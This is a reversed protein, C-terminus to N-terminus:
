CGAGSQNSQRGTTGDRAQVTFTTQHGAPCTVGIETNVQGISNAVVPMFGLGATSTNGAGDRSTTSGYTAVTAGPTFGSGGVRLISNGGLGFAVSASITPSGQSPQGPQTTPYYGARPPRECFTADKRFLDSGDPVDLWLEFNRHRIFRDPYNVSKFSICHGALGPVMEFSADMKFLESPQAGQDYEDFRIRWLSHRMWRKPYNRSRLSVTQTNPRCAMGAFVDFTADELEVRPDPHPRTPDSIYGLFGSHRVYRDPYNSAAFSSQGWLLASNCAAIAKAAPPALVAVAVVSLINASRRALKKVFM